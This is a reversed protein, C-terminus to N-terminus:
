ELCFISMFYTMIVGYYISNYFFGFKKVQGILGKLNSTGRWYESGGERVEM